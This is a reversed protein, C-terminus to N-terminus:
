PADDFKASWRVPPDRQEGAPRQAHANPASPPLTSLTEIAV